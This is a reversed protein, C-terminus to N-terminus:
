YILFDSDPRVFFGTGGVAKVDANLHYYMDTASLGSTSMSNSRMNVYATDGARLYNTSNVYFSGPTHASVDNGDVTYPHPIAAIFAVQQEDATLVEDPDLCIPTAILEPDQIARVSSNMADVGFIEGGNM